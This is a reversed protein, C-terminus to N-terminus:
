SQQVNITQIQHSDDSLHFPIALPLAMIYNNHNDFGIASCEINM